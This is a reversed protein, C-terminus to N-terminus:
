IPTGPGIPPADDVIVEPDKILQGASTKVVAAYKYKGLVGNERVQAVISEGKKAAKSKWTFPPEEGQAAKAKTDEEDKKFVIAYDGDMCNWEIIDKRQRYLTPKSPTVSLTPKGGVQDPKKVVISVHTRQAKM